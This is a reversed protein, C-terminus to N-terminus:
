LSVGATRFVFLEDVPVFGLREALRLSARNREEAGWVPRLGEKGMLEVM